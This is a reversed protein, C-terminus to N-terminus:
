NRTDFGRQERPKAMNVKIEQDGLSYANFLSIAKDAESQASMTIFAFGKPEGSNRDKIVDVSVVQGAQAFLTNLDEQSTSKALNGVYIKAEMKFSSEGTNGASLICGGGM